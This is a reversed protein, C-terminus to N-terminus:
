IGLYSQGRGEGLPSPLWHYAEKHGPSDGTHEVHPLGPGAKPLVLQHGHMIPRVAISIM